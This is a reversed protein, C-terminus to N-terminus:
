IVIEGELMFRQHLLWIHLTLFYAQHNFSKENLGFRMILDTREIRPFFISIQKEREIRPFSYFEIQKERFFTIVPRLLLLEPDYDDIRGYCTIDDPILIM